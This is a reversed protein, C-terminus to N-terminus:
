SVDFLSGGSPSGRSKKNEPSKKRGGAEEITVMASPLVIKIKGGSYKVNEALSYVVQKGTRTGAVLHNIRLVMLHHSVSPQPLNLAECLSTVNSEGKALLFVLRLRTPVSLLDFVYALDTISQDDTSAM